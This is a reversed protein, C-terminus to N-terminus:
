PDRTGTRDTQQLETDGAIIKVFLPEFQDSLVPYFAVIAESGPSLALPNNFGIAHIVPKQELLRLHQTPETRTSKMSNEKAM